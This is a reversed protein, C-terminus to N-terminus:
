KTHVLYLIEGNSAKIVVSGVGGKEEDSLTGSVVWANANKNFKILFPCEDKVYDGYVDNLVEIAVKFAETESKIIGFKKKYKALTNATLEKENSQYIDISGGYPEFSNETDMMFNRCNCAYVLSIFFLLSLIKIFHRQFTKTIRRM